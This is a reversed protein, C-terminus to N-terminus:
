SFILPFYWTGFLKEIQSERNLDKTLDTMKVNESELAKKDTHSPVNVKLNTKLFLENALTNDHMRNRKVSFIHGALSWLREVEVSAAVIGCVQVYLSKYYDPRESNNFYTLVETSSKNNFGSRWRSALLSTTPSDIDALAFSFWDSVENIESDNIKNPM